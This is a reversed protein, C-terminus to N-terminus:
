KARKKAFLQGNFIWGLKVLIEPSPDIEPRSAFM